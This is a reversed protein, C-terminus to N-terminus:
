GCNFLLINGEATEINSEQDYLNECARWGGANGDDRRQMCAGSTWSNSPLTAMTGKITVSDPIELDIGISKVMQYRATMLCM